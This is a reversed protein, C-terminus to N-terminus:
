DVVIRYGGHVRKGQWTQNGYMAECDRYVSERTRHLRREQPYEGNDAVMRWGLCYGYEDTIKCARIMMTKSM